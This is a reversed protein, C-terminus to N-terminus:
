ITKGYNVLNNRIQKEKSEILQELKTNVIAVKGDKEIIFSFDRFGLCKVINIVEERVSDESSIAFATTRKGYTACIFFPHLIDKVNSVHIALQNQM